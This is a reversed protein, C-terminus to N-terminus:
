QVKIVRLEITKLAPTLVCGLRNDSMLVLLTFTIAKTSMWIFKLLFNGFFERKLAM